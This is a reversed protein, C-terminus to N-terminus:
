DILCVTNTTTDNSEKVLPRRKRSEFGDKFKLFEDHSKQLRSIIDWTSKIDVKANEFWTQDRKIEIINYNKVVFYIPTITQQGEEIIIDSEDSEMTSQHLSLDEESDLLNLINEDVEDELQISSSYQNMNEIAWNVFESDTMEKHPPYIYTRSQGDDTENVIELLIGKHQDKSCQFSLFDEETSLEEIECQLFDCQYLNCVELQIQVQIWYYFPPIETIKRSLPCKIEVMIGDDTIGDPSAALWKLKSHGILGFENVHKKKVISYLRNAIEEYKKGWLTFKNDKYVGGGPSFFDECKKIIYADRSGYPNASKNENVKYDSQPFYQLFPTIISDKMNLCSAAESATVKTQRQNYWEPTRQEPQPRKKLFTVRKKLISIHPISYKDIQQSIINTTNATAQTITHINNEM